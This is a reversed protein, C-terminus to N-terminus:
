KMIMKEIEDIEIRFMEEEQIKKNITAIRWKVVTFDKSGAIEAIQQYSMNLFQRIFYMCVCRVKLINEDPSRRKMDELKVGYYQAVCSMIEDATIEKIFDFLSVALLSQLQKLTRVDGPGNSSERTWGKVTYYSVFLEESLIRYVDEKSKVISDNFMGELVIQSIRKCYKERNWM